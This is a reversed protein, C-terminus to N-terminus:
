YKIIHDVDEMQNYGNAIDAPETHNQDYEFRHLRTIHVEETKNNVLNLLTYRVGIKNMVRMPGKLIPMLKNPPGKKFGTNPYEVLVYLNIPYSILKSEPLALSMHEKDKQRQHKNAMDILIKQATLMKSAWESLSLKAIQAPTFNDYITRDKHLANGYLLAAPSVGTTSHVTTNIIRMVFPLYKYWHERLRKEFLMARLHRMVEKNAREVIANEEKSYAMTQVQEIQAMVCYEAMMNNIFQSGGDSVIQKPVGYRGCHANIALVAHDADVSKVPYLEVYRTFTDIIVIIYKNEIDDPPLPGITDVNVRDWPNYTATTFPLTHIATKLYSM